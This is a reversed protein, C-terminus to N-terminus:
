NGASTKKSSHRRRETVRLYYWDPDFMRFDRLGWPQTRVGAQIPYRARLVRQYVQGLDDVELVIESGIPPTRFYKLIGIPFYGFLESANLLGIRAFGNELSVYTGGNLQPIEDIVHFGLVQEYFEASRFPNKVYLEFRASMPLPEGQFRRLNVQQPLHQSYNEL